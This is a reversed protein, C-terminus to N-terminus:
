SSLMNIKYVASGEAVRKLAPTKSDDLAGNCYVKKGDKMIFKGGRPGKMVSCGKYVEGTAIAEKSKQASAATSTPVTLTIKMDTGQDAQEERVHIVDQNQKYEDLSIIMSQDPDPNEVSLTTEPRAVIDHGRQMLVDGSMVSLDSEEGSGALVGICGHARFPPDLHVVYSTQSPNNIISNVTARNIHNKKALVIHPIKNCTFNHKLYVLASVIGYQEDYILKNITLSAKKNVNFWLKSHERSKTILMYSHKACPLKREHSLMNLPFYSDVLTLLEKYSDQTIFVGTFVDCGEPIRAPEFMLTPKTISPVLTSM